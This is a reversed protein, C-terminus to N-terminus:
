YFNYIEKAYGGIEINLGHLALTKPNCIWKDKQYRQAAATKINNQLITENLNDNINHSEHFHNALENNSRRNKVDYSHKSFGPNQESKASPVFHLM